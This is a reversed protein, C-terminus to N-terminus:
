MTRQRYRAWLRAGLAIHSILVISVVSTPLMGFPLRGFWAMTTMGGEAFLHRQANLFTLFMDMSALVNWILLVRWSPRYSWMIILAAASLGALADGTGAQTTFTTPLQGLEGLWLFALGFGIRALHVSLLLRVDLGDVVDALQGHRNYVAAFLLVPSWIMVPIMARPIHLLAGSSAILASACLWCCLAVLLRARLPQRFIPATMTSM